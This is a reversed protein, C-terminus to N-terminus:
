AGWRSRLGARRKLDTVGCAVVDNRADFPVDGIGASEREIGIHLM